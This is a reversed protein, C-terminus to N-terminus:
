LEVEKKYDKFFDKDRIKLEHDEYKRPIDYLTKGKSRMRIIDDKITSGM